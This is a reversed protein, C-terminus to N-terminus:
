IISQLAAIARGCHYWLEPRLRCLEQLNEYLLEAEDKKLDLFSIETLWEGISKLWLESNTHSGSAILAIKLMEDPSLAVNTDTRYKRVLIRVEDQLLTNNTITSVHALGNLVGLLDNRDKVDTLVYRAQKVAEVALDVFKSDVDYLLSSNVLAAFSQPSIELGKLQEKIIQSVNEPLVAQESAVGDLPGPLFPFITSCMPHLSAIEGKEFLAKQSKESLKSVNEHLVILIRGLFEAKLQRPAALEPSWRPESYMDLLSQLYFSRGTIQVVRNSFEEIDVHFRM